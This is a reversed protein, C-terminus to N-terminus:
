THHRKRDNKSRKRTVVKDHSTEARGDDPPQESRTAVAGAGVRARQRKSHGAASAGPLKGASPLATGAKEIDSGGSVKISSKTASHLAPTVMQQDGEQQKVFATVQNCVSALVLSNAASGGPVSLAHDGADVPHETVSSSGLRQRLTHWPGPTSFPDRTGRVFLLPLTLEVLPVDRLEGQTCGWCM